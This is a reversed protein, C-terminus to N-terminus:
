QLATTPTSGGEEGQLPSTDKTDGVACRKPYPRSLSAIQTRMAEDLPMLYRHKGPIKVKRGIKPAPKPGGFGSQLARPHWTKGHNDVIM